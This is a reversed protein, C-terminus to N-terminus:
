AGFLVLAMTFSGSNWLGHAVMSPLLSRTKEFTYALVFGIAFLMLVGGKDFHLLAFLGASALMGPFAGIHPKVAAYFFGRFLIEEFIPAMVGLTMYFIFTAIASSSGATQVIQGIVPNDSGQTHLFRQAVYASAFILPIASCWALYGAAVLKVPGATATRSKIRLASWFDLGQPKLALWYILFPGPLNSLLYTLATTLAVLMPQTTIQPFKETVLHFGLSMTLMISFWAVFVVYVTKLPVILGVPDPPPAPKRAATGLQILINITGIFASGIMIMMILGLKFFTIAYKSDIESKLKETRDVAGAATYLQMLANDQFWGLPLHETIREKYQEIEKHSVSDRVYLSNMITSFNLVRASNAAAEATKKEREVENTKLGEVLKSIEAMNASRDEKGLLVILKEKYLANSSNKEVATRLAKAAGEFALKRQLQEALDGSKKKLQDDAAHTPRGSTTEGTKENGGGTSGGNGKENATDSFMGGPKKGAKTAVAGLLMHRMKSSMTATVSSVCAVIRLQMEAQDTAVGANSKALKNSTIAVALFALVFATLLSVLLQGVRKRREGSQSFYMAAVIANVAIFYGWYQQPFNM